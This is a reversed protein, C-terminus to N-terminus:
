FGKDILFKRIAHLHVGKFIIRGYRIAANRDDLNLFALLDSKLRHIDGAIHRVETLKLAGGAKYDTYVPLQNYKSREVFYPLDTDTVGKPPQWGSPLLEENGVLKAISRRKRMVTGNRIKVSQWVPGYDLGVATRYKKETLIKERNPLGELVEEVEAGTHQSVIAKDVISKVSGDANRSEGNLAMNYSPVKRRLAQTGTSLYRLGLSLTTARNAAAVPAAFYRCKSTM